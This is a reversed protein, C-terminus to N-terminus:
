QILDWNFQTLQRRESKEIERIIEKRRKGRISVPAVGVQLYEIDRM